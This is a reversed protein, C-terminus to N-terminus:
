LHVSLTTNGKSREEWTELVDKVRALILLKQTILPRLNFTIAMDCHWLHGLSTVSSGRIHTNKPPPTPPPTATTLPNCHASTQTKLKPRLGSLNLDPEIHWSGSFFSFSETNWFNTCWNYLREVTADVALVYPISRLTNKHRTLFLYVMIELCRYVSLLARYIYIYKKKNCLM